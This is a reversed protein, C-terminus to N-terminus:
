RNGLRRNGNEVKEIAEVTLNFTHYSHGGCSRFGDRGIYGKPRSGDAAWLYYGNEYLESSSIAYKGDGRVWWRVIDVSEPQLYIWQEKVRSLTEWEGVVM